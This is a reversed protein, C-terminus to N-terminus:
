ALFQRSFLWTVKLAFPPLNESALRGRASRTHAHVRVHKGTEFHPQTDCYEDFVTIKTSVLYAHDYFRYFFRLWNIKHQYTFLIASNIESFRKGAERVNKLHENRVRYLGTAVFLEFKKRSKDTM